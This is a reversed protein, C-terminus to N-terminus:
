FLYEDITMNCYEIPKKSYDVPEYLKLEVSIKLLFTFKEVFEDGHGTSDSFIHSLEHIAVYMLTNNDHIKDLYSSRLCFVTMEGKNITYSTYDTEHEPREKIHIEKTRKILKDISDNYKPYKNKNNKLYNVIIKMNKKIFALKNAAIAKNDKNQVLYFTDDLSSKELILNDNEIKSTYRICLIIVIIIIISKILM